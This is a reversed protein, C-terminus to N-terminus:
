GYMKERERSQGLWAVGAFILTFALLAEVHGSITGQSPANLVALAIQGLHYAPLFPAVQQLGHPLFQFPIWLGACFSMPLYTMNVMAPASNPGAFSGIALGVACFPIAGAILVGGLELWQAVPMRVGGFVAGLTFLLTVVIAGFVLSVVAKAVFYAALPMPSARKVQFWGLGREVAVGVGFAFLAAGMVGFAGYTALLYRAMPMFDKTQQQGMALGFFCYFMLPFLITSLSYVKMRLLKLFESKAEMYYVHAM